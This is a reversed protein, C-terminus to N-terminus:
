SMSCYKMNKQAGNWSFMFYCLKKEFDEGVHFMDMYANIISNYCYFESFEDVGSLPKDFFDTCCTFFYMNEIEHNVDDVATYTKISSVYHRVSKVFDCYSEDITNKEM